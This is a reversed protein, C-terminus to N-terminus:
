PLQSRLVRYLEVKGASGKSSVPELWAIKQGRALVSLLGKGGDHARYFSYDPAPKCIAIYDIGRRAIIAASEEPTGTFAAYSDLIGAVNRHYAGGVASHHTYALISPGQDVLGLVRGTPLAALNKLASPKLCDDMWVDQVRDFQRNAPLSTQITHGVLAFSADSAAFLSSIMVIPGLAKSLRLREVGIVVFAALAPLAYMLAFPLGRVEVSTVLLAVAALAAITLAARRESGEVFLSAGIAAIVALVAYCYGALFNGPEERALMFPSQVESIRSFWIAGLRPDVAGYPGMLCVPNLFAALAVLAIGLGAIAISRRLRTQVLAPWATLAALGCGGALGLAAYFSSFTDCSPAFRYASATAGALLLASALAFTVGFTRTRPAIAEGDVVWWLAVALLAVMIYPLTEMGIALSLCAMLAAAAPAWKSRTFDVLFAMMWLTIVIQINHHDISGPRFPATAASCSAGLLLAFLGGVRGALRWGMRAIALLASLLLLEPWAYLAWLEATKPAVFLRFFLILGGLGADVLHSWHMPLGYPANMRWQTTDFWSQGALLDRTEALQMANDASVWLPGGHITNVFIATALLLWLLFTLLIPNSDDQM